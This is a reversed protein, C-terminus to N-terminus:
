TSPRLAEGSNTSLRKQMFIRQVGGRYDDVVGIRLYGRKEYFTPAQFSLTDLIAGRCGAEVAAKEAANLITSGIGRCRLSEAVWIAHISFWGLAFDGILGGIVRGNGDRVYVDLNKWEYEGLYRNNFERLGDAILDRNQPHINQTIEVEVRPYTQPMDNM